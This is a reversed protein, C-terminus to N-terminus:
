QQIIDKEPLVIVTQQLQKGDTTVDQHTMSLKKREDDTCVLKMLAMQLTANPSKYWKSRLSVKLETRNTTLLEKLTNYENCDTPFFRYFTTKDCPLYAVIDEIFFLRHKETAEKAQKFIDQKNYAM